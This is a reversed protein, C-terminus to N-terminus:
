SVSGLSQIIFYTILGIIGLIFLVVQLVSTIFATKNWCILKIKNKNIEKEIYNLKDGEFNNICYYKNYMQEAKPVELRKHNELLKFRKATFYFQLISLGITFLFISLTTILMWFLTTEGEFKVFWM